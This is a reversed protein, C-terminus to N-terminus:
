AYARACAHSYEGQVCMATDGEGWMCLCLQVEDLSERVCMCMATGGEWWKNAVCNVHKPSSKRDVAEMAKVCMVRGTSLVPHPCCPFGQSLVELYTGPM